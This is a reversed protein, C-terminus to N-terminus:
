LNPILSMAVAEDLAHQLAPLVPAVHAPWIFTITTFPIPIMFRDWSRLYWARVPQAHFAGIWGAGTLEAVHVPGPKAIRAPGKPGDVTFACIRGAGYAEAMGRVAAAGGRTSSGRVAVFGLREVTRAILEGDFSQSILIAIGKNRFRYACALLSCHWFAFLTPGPVEIGVPTGPANVDRFRWTVGLTRVLAAAFPPVLALLVRQKPTFAV